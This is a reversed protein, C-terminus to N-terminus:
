PNSLINGDIIPIPTDASAAYLIQSGKPAPYGINPIEIAATPISDITPIIIDL